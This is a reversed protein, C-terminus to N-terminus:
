SHKRRIPKFEISLTGDSYVHVKGLHAALTRALAKEVEGEPELNLWIINHNSRRHQPASSSISAVKM